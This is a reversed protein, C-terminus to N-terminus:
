FGLFRFLADPSRPIQMTYQLTKDGLLTALRGMIEGHKARQDFPSLLLIVLRTPLGDLSDFDVGNPAIGIAGVFHNVSECRLHPLALGKGLVTTGYREKEQLAGIVRDVDDWPFRGTHAIAQVLRALVEPKKTGGPVSVNTEHSFITALEVCREAVSVDEEGQFHM